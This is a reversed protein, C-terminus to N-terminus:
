GGATVDLETSQNDGTRLQITLRVQDRVTSVQVQDVGVLVDATRYRSRVGSLNDRQIRDQQVAAYNGAVRQAEQRVDFATVQDLNLGIFEELRSGWGPHFRDNGLPEALACRLDQVVKPAGSILSYSGGALVLDRGRIEMAKMSVEV